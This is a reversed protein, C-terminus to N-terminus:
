GNDDKRPREQGTAESIANLLAACVERAEALTFTTTAAYGNSAFSVGISANDLPYAKVKVSM